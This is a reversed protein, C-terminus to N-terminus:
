TLRQLVDEYGQVRTYPVNIDLSLNWPHPQLFLKCGPLHKYVSMLNGIKDDYFFKAGLAHIFPGKEQHDQVFFFDDLGLAPIDRQAPLVFRPGGRKTVGVVRFGRNKLEQVFAQAGAYPLSPNSFAKDWIADMQEKTVGFALQLDWMGVMHQMFGTADVGHLQSVANELPISIDLLVSDIDTAFIPKGELSM